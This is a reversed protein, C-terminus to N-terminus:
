VSNKHLKTKFEIIEKQSCNPPLRFYIGYKRRERERGNREMKGINREVEREIKRARLLIMINLKEVM